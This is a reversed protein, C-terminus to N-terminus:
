DSIVETPYRTLYRTVVLHYSGSFSKVSGNRGIHLRIIQPEQVATPTNVGQATASQFPRVAQQIVPM